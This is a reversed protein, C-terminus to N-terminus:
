FKLKITRPTHGLVFSRKLLPEDFMNPNKPGRTRPTTSGGSPRLHVTRNNKMASGNQSLIKKVFIENPGWAEKRESQYHGKTFNRSGLRLMQWTVISRTLSKCQKASWTTTAATTTASAAHRRHHQQRHHSPLPHSPSPLVQAQPTHFLYVM